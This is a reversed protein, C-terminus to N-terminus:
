DRDPREIGLAKLKKYLHSREVKLDRATRTMRWHNRKLAEIIIAREHREMESALDVPGDRPVISRAAPGQGAPSGGELPLPGSTPLSAHLSDIDQARVVEGPVLIAIREMANKLERVNGPWSWGKLAAVADDSV